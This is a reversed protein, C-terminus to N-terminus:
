WNDGVLIKYFKGKNTTKNGYRTMSEM